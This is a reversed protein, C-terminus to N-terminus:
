FPVIESIATDTYTTGPYVSVLRVTLSATDVPRTLVIRQQEMRDELTFFSSTGDSFLLEIEKPRSNKEYLSASKHYGAQIYIGSLRVTEDFYLTISEGEGQGAAGEVWATTLDGDRVLNPVYSYEGSYVSTGTVDRIHSLAAAPPEASVPTETAPPETVAATIQPIATISAHQATSGGGSRIRPLLLVAAAIVALLLFLPWIPRQKREPERYVGENQTAPARAGCQVCFRNGPVLDAGCKKCKM